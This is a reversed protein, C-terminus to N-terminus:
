SAKYRRIGGETGACFVDHPGVAWAEVAVAEWGAYEEASTATINDSSSISLRGPLGSATGVLLSSGDFALSLITSENRRVKTPKTDSRLTSLKRLEVVGNAHGTAILGMEPSYSLCSLKSLSEQTITFIPDTSDSGLSFASITGEVSATIVADGEVGLVGLEEGPVVAMAEVGPGTVWKRVEKGEGVNWLRVTGDKSASLVERGM